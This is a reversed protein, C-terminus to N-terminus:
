CMFAWFVFTDAAVMTRVPYRYVIVICVLVKLSGRFIPMQLGKKARNVSTLRLVLLVSSAKRHLLCGGGLNKSTLKLRSLLFDDGLDWEVIQCNSDNLGHQCESLESLESRQYIDQRCRFMPPSIKPVESNAESGCTNGIHSSVRLKRMGLKPKLSAMGVIAHLRNM